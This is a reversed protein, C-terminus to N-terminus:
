CNEAIIQRCDHTIELQEPALPYDNCLNHLEDLYELDVDLIYGYLSNKSISNVNVDFNDINKVSKILNMM